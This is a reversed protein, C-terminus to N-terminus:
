NLSISSPLNYSQLWEASKTSALINYNTICAQQKSLWEMPIPIENHFNDNILNGYTQANTIYARLKLEDSLSSDQPYYFNPDYSSIVSLHLTVGPTGPPYDNVIGKVDFTGLTNTDPPSNWTVNVYGKNGNYFLAPVTSPLSDFSHLKTTMFIDGISYISNENLNGNVFGEITDVINTPVVSTGGLSVLSPKIHAQSLKSLYSAIGPTLLPSNPDLLVVPSGSKAAIASGALADAFGTGSALYLKEPTSAFEKIIISNTDYQDKGALRKIQTSPLLSSIETEINQSVVATGGIIYALNPKLSIIFSKLSDPLNAQTTLLIPYGRNAAFTSISLADPYNEGSAIVVPTGSPTNLQGAILANTQYRDDGGIRHVNTHGIEYLKDLFSQGIVATGGIIYVTGDMELHKDIYDFAQQSNSPSSDLLLIPADLERALVTSSLADAFSNGTSLIINKVKDNYGYEAIARATDYQSPGSLRIFNEDNGLAISPIQCLISLSLLVLISLKKFVKM